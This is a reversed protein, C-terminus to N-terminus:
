KLIKLIAKGKNVVTLFYKNSETGFLIQCGNIVFFGGSVSLKVNGEGTKM